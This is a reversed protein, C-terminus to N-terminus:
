YVISGGIQGVFNHYYEIFVNHARQLEARTQPEGAILNSRIDHTAVALATKCHRCQGNKIPLMEKFMKEDCCYLPCLDVLHKWMNGEGNLKTCEKRPHGRECLQCEIDFCAVPLKNDGVFFLDYGPLM